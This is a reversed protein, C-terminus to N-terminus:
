DHIEVDLRETFYRIGGSWERNLKRENCDLLWTAISIIVYRRVDERM